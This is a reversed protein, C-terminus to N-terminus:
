AHTFHGVLLCLTHLLLPAKFLCSSLFLMESMPSDLAAGSSVILHTRSCGPVNRIQPPGATSRVQSQGVSAHVSRCIRRTRPAAVHPRWPIDWVPEVPSPNLSSQTSIKLKRPDNVLVKQVPLAGAMLSYQPWTLKYKTQSLTQTPTPTM